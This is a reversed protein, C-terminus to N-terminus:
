VVHREGEQVVEFETSKTRIRRLSRPVPLVEEPSVGEVSLSWAASLSGMGIGVGMPPPPGVGGPSGITAPQQSAPSRPTADGSDPPSLPAGAQPAPHAGRAHLGGASGHVALQSAVVVAPAGGAAETGESGSSHRSAGSGPGGGGGGRPQPGPLLPQVGLAGHISTSLHQQPGSADATIDAYELDPGQEQLRAWGGKFRVGGGSGGDQWPPM